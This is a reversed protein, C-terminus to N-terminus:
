KQAIIIIRDSIDEDFKKGDFSGFINKIKFKASILRSKLEDLGYIKVSENYTKEIGNKKIIIDKIIRGKEIRRKQIIESDDLHLNTTPQLNKELFKKNFYDFVFHGNENLHNYATNFLNFNEEDSEFYGFSTFLNLVIDFKEDISFYRIDNRIFNINVGAAKANKNAIDLLNKSLDVSTVSFGKKAFEISHRGAGCALDLIKGSSKIGIISIISNVLLRAENEDRHKYVKLYEESEFWSEFWEAM